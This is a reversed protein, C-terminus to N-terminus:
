WSAGKVREREGDSRGGVREKGKSDRERQMQKRGGKGGRRRRVEGRSAGEDEQPAGPTRCALASERRASGNREDRKEKRAKSGPANRGKGGRRTMWKKSQECRTVRRPCAVKTMRPKLPWAGGGDGLELGRVSAVDLSKKEGRKKGRAVGSSSARCIVRKSAGGECGSAFAARDAAQSAALSPRATERPRTRKRREEISASELAQKPTGKNSVARMREREGWQVLVDGPGRCGKQARRTRARERWRQAKGRAHRARNPSWRGASM